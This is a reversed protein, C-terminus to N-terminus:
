LFAFEYNQDPTLDFKARWIPDEGPTEDEIHPSYIIDLGASWATELCRTLEGEVLTVGILSENLKHDYGIKPTITVATFGQAIARQVRDVCVLDFEGPEFSPISFSLPVSGPRPNPSLQASEARAGNSPLFTFVTAAISFLLRTKL